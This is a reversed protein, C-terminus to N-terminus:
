KGLFKQLVQELENMFKSPRKQAKLWAYLDSISSGPATADDLSLGALRAARVVRAVLYSESNPIEAGENFGQIWDYDEQSLSVSVRPRRGSKNARQVM